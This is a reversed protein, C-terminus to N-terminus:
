IYSVTIQKHLELAKHDSARLAFHYGLLYMLTHLLTPADKDGLIGDSWLRAEQTQDIVSAKKVPQRHQNSIKMEVDLANQIPTYLSDKLFNVGNGKMRIFGQLNVVLQWLSPGPYREGNRKRVEMVFRPIVSNLTDPSMNQIDTWPLLHEGVKENGVRNVIMNNRAVRWSIFANLAWMMNRKTTEPIKCEALAAIDNDTVPNGYRYTEESSSAEGDQALNSKDGDDSDVFFDM